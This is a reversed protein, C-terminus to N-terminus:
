GYPSSVAAFAPSSPPLTGAWRENEWLQVERMEANWVDDTLRDDDIIRQLLTPLPPPPEQSHDETGRDEKELLSQTEEPSDGKKWKLSSLVRGKTRGVVRVADGYRRVVLPWGEKGAWALVYPLAARVWPHCLVFPMLGGVLCVERIPFAPLHIIFLLPVFSLVLLTLIHPPYPSYPFRSNQPASPPPPQTNTTSTNASSSQSQTRTHSHSSSSTTTSPRPALHQPTLILHHVYPEIIAHADAVAGMLNQIGQINAQWPVSGEAAASSTSPLTEADSEINYISPTSSAPDKHYPYTALIVGILILHPLLLILRPYFCLLAYAAMWVGTRMWGRKWLLVEEVRDQLWFVPGVISVFRKFNTSMIPLSLPDRSSLLTVNEPEYKLKRRPNPPNGLTPTMAVPSSTVNGAAGSAGGATTSSSSSTPAGGPLSASLLLQPIFSLTPSTLSTATSSLLSPRRTRSSTPSPPPSPHPISTTIRPAPRIDNSSSSGQNPSSLLQTAGPPVDIYDLTAM